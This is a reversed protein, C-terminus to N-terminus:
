EGLSLGTETLKERGAQLLDRVAATLTESAPAPPGYIAPLDDLQLYDPHHLEIIQAYDFRRDGSVIELRYAHTALLSGSDIQMEVALMPEVAVAFYQHGTKLVEWGGAQFTTGISGGALIARHESAFAEAITEPYGVIAFSRMTRRGDHSSYLNSLRVRADSYWVDIGYGGFTQEIRESNLMQAAAPM